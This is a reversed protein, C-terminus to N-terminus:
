KNDEYWQEIAPQDKRAIAAELVAVAEQYGRELDSIEEDTFVPGEDTELHIIRKFTFRQIDMDLDNM